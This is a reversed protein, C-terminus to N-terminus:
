APIYGREQIYRAATSRLKSLDLPIQTTPDMRDPCAGSYFEDLSIAPSQPPLHPTPFLVYQEVLTAQNPHAHSISLMLGIENQENPRCFKVQLVVRVANGSGEQWLRADEQQATASESWGSELVVSPFEANVVWEPGVLPIFTLDAEKVSGAYKGFFNKYEPAAMMDITDYWRLPILGQTVARSVEGAFWSGVCEHLKSPFVIKLSKLYPFWHIRFSLRELHNSPLRLTEVIAAFKAPDLDKYILLDVKRARISSPIEQFVNETM